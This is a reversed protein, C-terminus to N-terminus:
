SLIHPKLCINLQRGPRQLQMYFQQVDSESDPNLQSSIGGATCPLYMNVCCHCSVSLAHTAIVWSVCVETTYHQVTQQQECQM